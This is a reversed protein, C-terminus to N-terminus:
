KHGMQNFGFLEHLYIYKKFLTNIHMNFRKKLLWTITNKLFYTQVEFPNLFQFQLLKKFSSTKIASWLKLNLTFTTKKKRGKEYKYTFPPTNKTLRRNWFCVSMAQIKNTTKM